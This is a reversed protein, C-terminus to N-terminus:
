GSSSFKKTLSKKQNQIPKTLSAITRQNQIPMTLGAITWKVQIFQIEGSWEKFGFFINNERLDKDKLIKM